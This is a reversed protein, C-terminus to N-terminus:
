FTMMKGCVEADPYYFYM